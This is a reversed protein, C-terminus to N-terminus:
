VFMLLLLLFEPISDVSEDVTFPIPLWDPAPPIPLLLDLRRFARERELEKPRWERRSRLRRRAMLDVSVRM